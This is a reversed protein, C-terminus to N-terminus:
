IKQNHIDIFKILGKNRNKIKKAPIGVFIGWSDLSKTVLSMAGVISGENIILNPFVISGAGVQVFRCITVRGGTVKTYKRDHIPGILYDGSFDDMASFITTRPSLGTYDELTIGKSGYLACYTSIHIHSGLTINGSLVCFDDIRVNNGISIESASYISVKKSILVNEGYSNLGINKLEKATYFSNM